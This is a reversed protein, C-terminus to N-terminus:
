MTTERTVIAIDASDSNSRRKAHSESGGYQGSQGLRPCQRTRSLGLLCGVPYHGGLLSQRPPNMWGDCGPRCALCVPKLTGNNRCGAPMLSVPHLRSDSSDGRSGRDASGPRRVNKEVAFPGSDKWSPRGGIPDGLSVGRPRVVNNFMSRGLFNDGDAGDM